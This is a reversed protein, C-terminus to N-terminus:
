PPYALFIPSPKLRASAFIMDRDVKFLLFVIVEVGILAIAKKM